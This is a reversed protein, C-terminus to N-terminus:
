LSYIYELPLQRIEKSIDRHSVPIEIALSPQRIVEAYFQEPSGMDPNHERNKSSGPATKGKELRYGSCKQLYRALRYNRQNYAFGKEQRSYIIKGHSYGFTLLGASKYEQFVGILARTENESAPEENIKQRQYYNTPFNQKLDIGRANCPFGETPRDQMKLMQRYIPNRIAGYGHAAIEYADPNVIPVFCIKIKDLLKKVEYNEGMIWGCEYFQCYEEAVELLYEPLGGDGGELGSVCFICSEGKGIEFMPIMRDDHSRGIVRFQVFEGYRQGMEWLAFYVKEYTCFETEKSTVAKKLAKAEM